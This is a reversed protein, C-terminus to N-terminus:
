KEYGTPPVGFHAKFCRTFYNPDPFGCRIAVTSVNGKGQKLQKAAEELRFIQLYKMPTMWTTQKFKRCFHADSYGCRAALQEVTLEEPFHNQMYELTELILPDGKPAASCGEMAYQLLLDMMRYALSMAELSSEECLSYLRDFCEVVESAYTTLHFTM